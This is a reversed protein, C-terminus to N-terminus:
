NNDDKQINTDVTQTNEQRQAMNAKFVEERKKLNARQEEFQKRKFVPILFYIAICIVVIVGLCIFFVLDADNPTRALFM